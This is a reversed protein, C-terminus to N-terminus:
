NAAARELTASLPALAVGESRGGLAWSLLATVTDPRTRGVVIGTGEQAATFAARDLFRSIVTARQDEDDLLRFVTAGPVGVRNASQAAANLGQPFAVLGHGTEQLAGVMADLVARDGQIRGELTDLVAVAEPLILQVAGFAVETDSATAGEPIMSALIVIEFGAERYAQARRAAEPHQPDVAFAVPLTIRTLTSQAIVSDPDDILIVSLLPREESADFPAAFARIAPQPGDASDDPAIDTSVEAAEPVVAAGGSIQPLDSTQPFRPVSPAATDATAMTEPIAPTEPVEPATITPFRPASPAAEADVDAPATTTPFRPTAATADADPAASAAQAPLRTTQPPAPVPDAEVPAAADAAVDADPAAEDGPVAIQPLLNTRVEPAIATEPQALVAPSGAVVPAPAVSPAAPAAGLDGIAGIPAPGDVAVEPQAATATDFRPALVDTTGQPALPAAIAPAADPAPVAAEEEPPPRNFESGSPLPVATAAGSVAGPTGEGATAGSSPVAGSPAQVAAEDDAESNEAEEGEGVPVPAPAPSPSPSPVADGSPVPDTEAGEEPAESVEGGGVDAAESVPADSVEAPAADRVRVPLPSSLSLAALGLSSVLLGLVIGTTLGGM